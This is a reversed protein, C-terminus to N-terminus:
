ADSKGGSIMAFPSAAMERDYREADSERYGKLGWGDRMANRTTAVWDARREAKSHSWDKVVNFAWRVQSDTFGKARAWALLSERDDPELRDPCQTKVPKAPKRIAKGKPPVPPASPSERPDAQPDIMTGRGVDRTWRGVPPNSHNEQPDASKRPLPEPYKSSAGRRGKGRHTEWGTLQVYPRGDVEYLLIPPDPIGALEELVAGIRKTTMRERLPFLLGKLVPLRGDIRGYDDVAVILARFTLDAEISVQSLSESANIEGRIIRAPM